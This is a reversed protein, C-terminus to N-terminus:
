RAAPAPRVRRVKMRKPKFANVVWDIVRNVWATIDTGRRM